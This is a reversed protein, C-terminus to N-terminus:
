KGGAFGRSAKAISAWSRGTYILLLGRRNGDGQGLVLRPAPPRQGPFGLVGM